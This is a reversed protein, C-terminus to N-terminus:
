IYWFGVVLSVVRSGTIKQQKNNALFMVENTSTQDLPEFHLESALHKKLAKNKAHTTFNIESNCKKQNMPRTSDPFNGLKFMEFYFNRKFKYLNIRFNFLSCLVWLTCIFLSFWVSIRKFTDMSFYNLLFSITQINSSQLM